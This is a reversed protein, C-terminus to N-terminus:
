LPIERNRLEVHVENECYEILEKLNALFKNHYKEGTEKSSGTADGMLGFGNTAEKYTFVDSSSLVRDGEIFPDHQLYRHKNPINSRVEEPDCLEPYLYFMHSSEMEEAHGIGGPASLRLEKGKEFNFYFPDVIPLFAGTKNRLRTTAIKIPPLNAERHGNIIIIKEFGHYILSQCIDEVLATLTEPRLTITGPYAMHHPAWGFWSQPVVLTNTLRGADEAVKEAVFSDTGMPLHTSHQEVSGFPVIITKKVKLYEEVDKWKNEHLWISKM